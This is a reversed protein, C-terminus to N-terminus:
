ISQISNEANHESVQATIQNVGTIVARRAAVDARNTMGSAYDVVRLGSNTMQTVVKRIASNYDTGGTVVDQIATDVYKQYYEAFPTFVRKGAM